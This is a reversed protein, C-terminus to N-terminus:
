SASPEPDADGARAKWWVGGAIAAGLVLLALLWTLWTVWGSRDSSSTAALSATEVSFNRVDRLYVVLFPLVLGTGLASIGDAALVQWTRRSLDPVLGRLMSSM